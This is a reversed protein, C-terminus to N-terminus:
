RRTSLLRMVADKAVDGVLGLLWSRQGLRQSAASLAAGSLERVTSSEVLAQLSAGLRQLGERGQRAGLIYGVIFAAMIEM